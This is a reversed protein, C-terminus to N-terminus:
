GMWGQSLAMGGSEEQRPAANSITELGRGILSFVDVADDHRGGPFKFLQGMVDAKWEAVRPVWVRGMSARAQISRARSPKDHISPLYEMWCFANREQMRRMLFPEVSRRIPGAEGFWRLPKHKLVLDLQREIWVDATAQGRWWDLVYINSNQDVGFVGHETYDGGDETVAYDSAGYINLIRPAEDYEGFWEKKFYEGDEPAPDQMYLANWQRPDTNLKIRELAAKDYRQPWPPNEPDAKLEVVEWKDGGQAQSKLLMGVLDDEHMRHQIVVIAGGPRIRNYFTGTYWEWVRRRSTESQADEWTAFPDDIIGLDGGRGMLAGGIGVAYYGGGQLTNWRGRAQSDATLVVEPFLAKYEESGVCNRVSGGFEEALPSTASAGLIDLLPNKGLLYAPARKSAVTSKGHQPPCLLMLRDVERRAVRDLQECIAQHIPGPTWRPTTYETFALLSNRAKRRSLM